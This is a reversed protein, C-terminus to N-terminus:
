GLRTENLRFNLREAASAFFFNKVYREARGNSPCICDIDGLETYRFLDCPELSCGAPILDRHNRGSPRHPSQQHRLVNQVSSQDCAAPRSGDLEGFGRCRDFQAAHLPIEAATVRFYAWVQNPSSLGGLSPFTLKLMSGIIAPASLAEWYTGIRAVLNIFTTTVGLLGILSFSPLLRRPIIV